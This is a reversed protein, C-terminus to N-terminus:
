AVESETARFALPDALYRARAKGAPSARFTKSAKVWAVYADDRDERTREVWYPDEAEDLMREALQLAERTEQLCQWEPSWIWFENM